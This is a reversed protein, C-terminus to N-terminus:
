AQRIKGRVLSTAVGIAGIAAMTTLAIKMGLLFPEDRILIGPSQISAIASTAMSLMFVALALSIAQGSFRMTGLIGSAIGYQSREVSSMVANTNPSSFFAYGLGLLLLRPVIDWATSSKDLLSLSMISASIVAMGASVVYRPEMKDSLWGGVPSFMAMVIPQALLILGAYQPEFNLVLQLYLSFIFSVGFTSSYSLLATLNSFAFTRNRVFLRLDVLPFRTRTESFLFILLMAFGALILTEYGFSISQRESFTLALLILSLSSGYSAAGIWDFKEGRSASHEGRIKLLTLSAVALGLPLNVFFISRWGLGQVLFGGLSPGSSLGVYVAATNIGLAKGRKDEPFISTLLAMSNGSMMASGLGQSIRMVILTILSTSLGAAVSAATFVSVGLVYMLKRGYIDALRGFPVLFITLTTVYAASVWGLLAINGGLEKGISPLALVIVSGDFPAMFSGFTAVLLAARTSAVNFSPHTSHNSVSTGIVKLPKNM